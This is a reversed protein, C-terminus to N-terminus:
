QALLQGAHLFQGDAELRYFYLGKQLHKRQLIIEQTSANQHVDDVLQGLANYVRLHLSQYPPANQIRLTTAQEFPNPFATVILQGREELAPVMNSLITGCNSRQRFGIGYSQMGAFPCAQDMISLYFGNENTVLLDVQLTLRNSSPQLVQVQADPYREQLTTYLSDIFLTDTATSDLFDLRFSLTDNPCYEFVTNTGQSQWSSGTWRSAQLLQPVTPNPTATSPSYVILHCQKRTNGILQGNRYEQILIDFEVMQPVNEKATFTLTGTISNFNITTGAEEFLPESESYGAAWVFPTNYDSQGAEISYVLSDGDPDHAIYTIAYPKGWYAADIPIDTTIASQNCVNPDLVQAEVHVITGSAVNTLSGLRCCLHSAFRFPCNHFISPIEVTDKYIYEDFYIGTPASNCDTPFPTRYCTIPIVNHERFALRATYTSDTNFCSDIGNILLTAPFTGRSNGGCYGYIKFTVEYKHSGLCRYSLTAGNEHGAQANFNLFLLGM